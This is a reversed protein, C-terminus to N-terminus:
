VGRGSRAKKRAEYLNTKVSGSPISLIEAIQANSFGCVSLRLCRDENTSNDPAAPAHRGEDVEVVVRALEREAERRTGRVTRQRYRRVGSADRGVFVKLRWSAKGRQQIHGRM